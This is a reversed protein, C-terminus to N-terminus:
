KEFFIGGDFMYKALRFLNTQEIENVPYISAKELAASFLLNFFKKEFEADSTKKNSNFNKQTQELIAQYDMTIETSEM